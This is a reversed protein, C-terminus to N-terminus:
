SKALQRQLHEIAWRLVRDSFEDPLTGDERELQDALAGGPKDGLLDRRLRYKRWQLDEQKDLEVEFRPTPRVGWTAQLDDSSMRHINKESPRWYTASTLKLLSRGSEIHTFLRQVTGKGYSRQGIIVARSYDQLCAALIESASASDRNILVGMPLETYGGNGTSVFRDRAVQDRGRTTVITRGARLFLDSIGVAADLNGGANDRVDIILAEIPLGTRHETLDALVRTLEAETKDGFKTIRVYGIRPDDALRFNWQGNENRVDGYISEVTIMARTLDVDHSRDDEVHRIALKIPAGVPGRMLRLVDDMVMDATQQDNIALIRDGSRIDARFAPTGPEPPGVVTPLAPEGLLRIRVGVGGFQQNLDERFGDRQQENVFASHEDGSKRLVDIMGRMAGEFLQQDPADQLSWRDIVSFGAAVYRAYPNQEARVYCAYSILATSLLLLLNRHPMKANHGLRGGLRYHDGALAFSV